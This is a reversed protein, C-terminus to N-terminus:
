STRLPRRRPTPSSCGRGGRHRERAPPCPHRPRRRGARRDHRLPWDAADGNAPRSMRARGGRRAGVACPDRLQEDVGRVYVANPRRTSASRLVRTVMPPSALRCWSGTADVTMTPGFGSSRGSSSGNADSGSNPSRLWPARRDPGASSPRRGATRGARRCRRSCRACRRDSRNAERVGLEGPMAASWTLSTIPEGVSKGSGLQERGPLPRM